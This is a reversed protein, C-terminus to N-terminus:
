SLELQWDDCATLAVERWCKSCQLIAHESVRCAQHGVGRLVRYYGIHNQFSFVSRAELVCRDFATSHHVLEQTPHAMLYRIGFIRSPKGWKLSLQGWCHLLGLTSAMRAVVALASSDLGLNPQVYKLMRLVLYMRSLSADICTGSDWKHGWGAFYCTHRHSVLGACLHHFSGQLCISRKLSLM